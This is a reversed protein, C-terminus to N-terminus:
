AGFLSPRSAGDTASDGMLQMATTVRCEDLLKERAMACLTQGGTTCDLLRVGMEGRLYKVVAKLFNECDLPVVRVNKM